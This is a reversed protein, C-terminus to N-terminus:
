TGGDVSKANEDQLVGPLALRLRWVPHRGREM